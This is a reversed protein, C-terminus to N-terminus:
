DQRHELEAGYRYMRKATLDCIKLLSRIIIEVDLDEEVGLRQCLRINADYVKSYLLECERGEAFLNEVIPDDMQRIRTGILLDYVIDVTKEKM